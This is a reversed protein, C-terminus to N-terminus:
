QWWKDEEPIQPRYMPETISMRNADVDFVVPRQAGPDSPGHRNKVVAVQLQNGSSGITLQLEPLQNVKGQIAKRPPAKGPEGVAESTHHLVWVSSDTVRCLGHFYKMTQRLESWENDGGEALNLLNDVVIIEPYVGYIEVYAELERWIDDTTPAPEFYYAINSDALVTGYRTSFQGAELASEVVTLPDNTAISAARALMTSQDSDASVYLTPRRIKHATLQAFFTKGAGPPGAIM